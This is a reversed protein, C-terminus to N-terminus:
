KRTLVFHVTEGAEDTGHIDMRSLSILKGEIQYSYCHLLPVCSLSVLMLRNGEIHGEKLHAMPFQANRVQIGAIDNIAFWFRGLQDNWTGIYANRLTETDIGTIDLETIQQQQRDRRRERAENASAALVAIATVVLVFVSITRTM